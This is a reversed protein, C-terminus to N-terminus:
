RAQGGICRGALDARPANPLRHPCRRRSKRRRSHRRGQGAM